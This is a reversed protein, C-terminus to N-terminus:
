SRARRRPGVKPGGFPGAAGRTDAARCPTVPYFTLPRTSGPAAFYGNGDLIVDSPNSVYVSTWVNSGVPVLAAPGLLRRPKRRRRAAEPLALCIKTLRALRLDEAGM